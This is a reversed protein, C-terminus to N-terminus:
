GKERVEVVTITDTFCKIRDTTAENYFFALLPAASRSNIQRKRDVSSVLQQMPAHLCTHTNTFYYHFIFIRPATFLFCSFTNQLYPVCHAIAHISTAMCFTFQGSAQM